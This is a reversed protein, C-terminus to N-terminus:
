GSLEIERVIQQSAEWYTKKMAIQPDEARPQVRGKADIARSVITHTGPTPSSWTHSWFTWTHPNADAPPPQLTAEIWSGDDISVQVSELPTRSM